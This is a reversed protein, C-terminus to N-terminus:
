FANAQLRRPSFSSESHLKDLIIRERMSSRRNRVAADISNSPSLRTTRTVEWIM